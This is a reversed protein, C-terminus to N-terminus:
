PDLIWVRARAEQNKVRSSPVSTNDRFTPLSNGCCAVYCGLLVCKEDVESRFGSFKQSVVV